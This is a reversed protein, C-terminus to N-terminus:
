WYGVAPFWWCWRTVDGEHRRGKNSGPFDINRVGASCVSYSIFIFFTFSTSTSMIKKSQFFDFFFYFWTLWFCIWERLHHNSSSGIKKWPRAALSGLLLRGFSNIYTSPWITLYKSKLLQFININPSMIFLTYSMNQKKPFETKFGEVFWRKVTM